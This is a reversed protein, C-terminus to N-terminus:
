RSVLSSPVSFRLITRRTTADIVVIFSRSNTARSVIALDENLADWALDMEDAKTRTVRTIAGTQRNMVYVERSKEIDSYSVPHGNNDRTDLWALWMGDASIDLCCWNGNTAVFRHRESSTLIPRLKMHESVVFLTGIRNEVGLQPRNVGIWFPQGFGPPLNLIYGSALAETFLVVRGNSEAAIHDGDSSWCLRTIDGNEANNVEPAKWSRRIRDTTLDIVKVTPRRGTGAVAILSGDPNLAAAVGTGLSRLQTVKGKAWKAIWVRGVGLHDPDGRDSLFSLTSGAISVDDVYVSSRDRALWIYSFTVLGAVLLFAVLLVAGTRFIVDSDRTLQKRIMTPINEYQEATPVSLM